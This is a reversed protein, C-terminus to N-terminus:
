SQKDLEDILAKATTVAEEALSGYGTARGTNLSALLGSLVATAIRELREAQQSRAELAEDAPKPVMHLGDPTVEETMPDLVDPLREWTDGDSDVCTEGRQLDSVGRASLPFRESVEKASYPGYTVGCSVYQFQKM